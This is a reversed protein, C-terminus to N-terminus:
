SGHGERESLINQDGKKSENAFWIVRQPFPIEIGAEEIAQKIKWLLDTKVGFWVQSPAWVRVTLNVSNEGLENVFVQPSPNVLAFPHEDIVKKIIEIAREADDSYRIGVTYEFRRVTNYIFNRINSNFVKENPLRVYIGDWTRIRTSFVSIDTVVGSVGGIDVQDGINLPKDIFLFVGSILNSVVTQSAFGLMIGLIGGAVLLGTLHIGIQPLVAIIAIALIGYYAAKEFLVLTNAPVINKLSRRLSVRVVRAIIVALALTFIVVLLDKVTVNGWVPFGLLDIM